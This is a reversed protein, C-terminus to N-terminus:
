CWWTINENTLNGVGGAMYVVYGMILRGMDSVLIVAM